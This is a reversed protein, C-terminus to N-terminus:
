FDVTLHFFMRKASPYPTVEVNSSFGASGFNSVEPDYSDYHTITFLNTASVGLKIGSVVGKFTKNLLDTNFSYYLGIDRLRVFSADQVFIRSSVGVTSIRDIADAVGNNNKDADYDHSTGGLDNLFQSLNINDGKNKWHLTFSLSLNKYITFDNVFNMQFKPESNGLVFVGDSNGDGDIDDLGVIQTPSKGEEIKFSGLTNSFGGVNFSPIDLKLMKARNMWYNTRFNWRFNPSSFPIFGLSLEVGENQLTGGNIVKQVFGSSPQVNQTFILDYAKKNYYTAEFTVKNDLFSIDFGAEFEKQREQKIDKNGQQVFGQNNIVGILTGGFGGINSASFSTYKSGFPPFNGSEGYAARLKLQNISKVKWFDFNQLNVAASAKPFMEFKNVDANDTSKDFRLGGTVIVRDAFNIEEQIFLGRNKRPARYQVVTVASAQNVNTQTGILKTAVDLLQNQDFNEATAGASTTFNWAEKGGSTYTNVLLASYNTNLNNTSGQVSAGDTGNGNSEFQLSNPFIGKTYLNYYDLGGRVIAKTVSKSNQQIFATLSLGGLFRNVKENNTILDRTELPNSASYPNAPYNGAADPHLNAYTPTSSLAVGYSVSNNDNNTLGRDASSNIYNTTLAVNFRNSIKHDVNARISYKKYGSNKIIGDEDQILGSLFFNTKEGGGRVSLSSNTLFGTEGYMEKEYDYLANNAVADRYLQKQADANAQNSEYFAQIKDEDWQRVGLLKIAKATGLDQSFSVKTKGQSGKKTTIIIVGSSALAGYIAAASAGKLVEVNEIDEPNIDAIRNSPNDQNSTASGNRSAATVVNLGGSISSNDMIVGDVVYLPQTGSNISTLGRLRVSMGGGPAGSAAIINAGVLKGNLAGDLTQPTSTGTLEKSSITAVANALNSRKVNTALGTIVVEDLKAVDEALKINITSSSAAVTQAQYGLLFFQIQSTASPVTISYNGNVDTSAGTTSGKLTVNVGPLPENSVADTVKGKVNVQAFTVLPAILVMSFLTFLMKRLHRIRM